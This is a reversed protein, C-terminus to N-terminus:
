ADMEELSLFGVSELDNLFMTGLQEFHAVVLLPVTKVLVLRRRQFVRRIGGDFRQLINESERDLAVRLDFLVIRQRKPVKVVNLLDVVATIDSRKVGSKGLDRDM